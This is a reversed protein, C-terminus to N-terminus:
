YSHRQSIFYKVLKHIKQHQSKNVNGIHFDVFCASKCKERLVSMNLVQGRASITWYIIKVDFTIPSLLILKWHCRKPM